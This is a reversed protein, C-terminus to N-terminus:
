MKLNIKLIITDIDKKCSIGNKKNLYEGLYRVRKGETRTTNVHGAQRTRRWKNTRTTDIFHRLNLISLM